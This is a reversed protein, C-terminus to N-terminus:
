FYHKEKLFFEKEDEEDLIKDTNVITLEPKHDVHGFKMCTLLYDRDEISQKLNGGDISGFRFGASVIISKRGFMIEHLYFVLNQHQEYDLQETSLILYLVYRTSITFWDGKELVHPDKIEIFKTEKQRPWYGSM